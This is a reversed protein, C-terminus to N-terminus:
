FCVFHVCGETHLTVVLSLLAAKSTIPTIAEAKSSAELALASFGIMVRGVSTQNSYVSGVCNM